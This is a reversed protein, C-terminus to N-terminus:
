FLGFFLFKPSLFRQCILPESKSIPELSYLLISMTAYYTQTFKLFEILIHFYFSFLHSFSLLFFLFLCVGPYLHHTISFQNAQGKCLLHSIQLFNEFSFCYGFFALHTWTTM